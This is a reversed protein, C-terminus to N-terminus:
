QFLASQKAHSTQHKRDTVIQATELHEVSNEYKILFQCVSCRLAKWTPPRPPLSGGIQTLPPLNELGPPSVYVIMRMSM